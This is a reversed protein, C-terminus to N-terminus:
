EAVCCRKYKKGSGCPCPANRSVKPSTRIIPQTFKSRDLSHYPIDGYELMPPIAKLELKTKELEIMALDAVQCHREMMIHNVLATKGIVAHHHDMGVVIIKCDESINSTQIAELTAALRGSQRPPFNIMMALENAKIQEQLPQFVERRWKDKFEDTLEM